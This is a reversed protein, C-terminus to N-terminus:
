NYNLYDEIKETIQSSNYICLYEMVKPYKTYIQDLSYLNGKIEFHIQTIVAGMNGPIFRIKNRQKMVEKGLNKKKEIFSETKYTYVRFMYIGYDYNLCIHFPSVDSIMKTIDIDKIKKFGISLLEHDYISVTGSDLCWRVVNKHGLNCSITFALRSIIDKNGLSIYWKIVNLQGYVCAENYARYLQVKIGKKVCVLNYLYKLAKLHGNKSLFVFERLWNSTAMHIKYQENNENYYKIINIAGRYYMDNIIIEFYNSYISNMWLLIKLADFEVIIDYLRRLNIYKKIIIKILEVDDNRCAKKILMEYTLITNEENVSEETIEKLEIRIRDLNMLNSNNKIDPIKLSM